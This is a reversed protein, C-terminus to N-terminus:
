EDFLVRRGAIRWGQEAMMTVVSVLLAREAVKIREHLTDVTDDAHM